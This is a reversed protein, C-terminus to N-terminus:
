FTYKLEVSINRGDGVFYRYSGFAYDARDAILKDTINNVHASFKWNNVTQQLHLNLVKHGAYQHLNQPDLFYKGLYLWELEASTRSSPEYLIHASGQWRPATDIDNGKIDVDGYLRAYSYKHKAWSASTTLLWDDSVQLRTQWEIGEHETQGDNVLFGASDRVIVQNKSMTYLSLESSLRNSQYRVGSEISDIEESKIISIEQEKQLRYLENIQPARYANSFRVFIGTNRDTDYFAGLQYSFNETKDIQDEPRYYRCSGNQSACLSGDDRTSGSIMRNKYDYRLSEFRFGGELTLKPTPSWESNSFIGLQSSDVEFDYHQGQFRVNDPTGLVNNQIETVQMKAWEIDVGIWTKSIENHNLQYASQLGASTQGNNEQAQGPLYHQLFTMSSKRLYPTVNWRENSGNRVVEGSVRSSLRMAFADRYAEPNPNVNRVLRDKYSNFGKIYGATEQNLNVLSLHTSSSFNNSAWGHKISLKQQDFGSNDKFGGDSVGNAAVQLSKLGEENKWGIKMRHYNNSGVETAIINRRVEPSLTNIVGHMANSGYFVTGPGRWIEVGSAQETNAEFLQNVNCMGTPRIPLGDETILIEACSGAGTFVPSRVSALLEQGNGRSLWVGPVRATVQSIHAHAIRQLEDESVQGANGIVKSQGEMLRRGTVVVSQIIEEDSFSELTAAGDSYANTSNFNILGGFLVVLVPWSIKYSM